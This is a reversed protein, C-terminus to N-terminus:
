GGIRGRHCAAPNGARCPAPASSAVGATSPRRLWLHRRPGTPKSAPCFDPSRAKIRLTGRRVPEPVVRPMTPDSVASGERLHLAFTAGEFKRLRQALDKIIPPSLTRRIM